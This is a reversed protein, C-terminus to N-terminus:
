DDTIGSVNAEISFFEFLCRAMVLHLEQHTSEGWFELEGDVNAHLEDHCERCLPVTRYDDTKLATGGM